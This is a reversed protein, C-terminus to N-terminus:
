NKGYIRAAVISDTEETVYEALHAYRLVSNYDKQGLNHAENLLPVKTQV